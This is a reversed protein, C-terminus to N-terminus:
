HKEMKPMLCHVGKGNLEGIPNRKAPDNVYMRGFLDVSGRM